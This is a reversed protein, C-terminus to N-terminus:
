ASTSGRRTRAAAAKAPTGPGYAAQVPDDTTTHDGALPTWTAGGDTSVSVYGWDYWREIDYWTRFTLVPDTAGTLDVERTLKTDISEEANGWLLPHGDPATTSLM